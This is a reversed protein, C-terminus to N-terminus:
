HGTFYVSFYISNKFFPQASRVHFVSGTYIRTVRELLLRTLSNGSRPFSPLAVVEDEALGKFPPRNTADRLTPRKSAVSKCVDMDLEEQESPASDNDESDAVKVIAAAKRKTEWTVMSTPSQKASDDDTNRRHDRSISATTSIGDPRSDYAVIGVVLLTALTVVGVVIRPNPRRM